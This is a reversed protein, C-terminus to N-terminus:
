KYKRLIEFIKNIPSLQLTDGFQVPLMAITFGHNAAYTEKVINGNVKTLYVWPVNMALEINIGIRELRNKLVTLKDMKM